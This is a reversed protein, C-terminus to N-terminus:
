LLHEGMLLLVSYRVVEQFVVPEELLVVAFRFVLWRDNHVVGLHQFQHFLHRVVIFVYGTAQGRRDSLVPNWHNSVKFLGIPVLRHGLSPSVADLRLLEVRPRLALQALPLQLLYLQLACFLWCVRFLVLLHLHFDLHEIAM